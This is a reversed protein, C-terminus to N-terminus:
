VRDNSKQQYGKWVGGFFSFKQWVAPRVEDLSNEWTM